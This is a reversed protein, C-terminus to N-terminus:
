CSKRKSRSITTPGNARCMSRYSQLNQMFIRIIVVPLDKCHIYKGGIINFCIPCHFWQYLLLNRVETAENGGHIVKFAFGFDDDQPM